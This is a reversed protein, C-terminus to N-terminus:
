RATAAAIASSVMTIRLAESCVAEGMAKSGEGEAEGRSRPSLRCTEVTAGSREFNTPMSRPPGTPLWSQVGSVGSVASVSIECSLLMAVPRKSVFGGAPMTGMLFDAYAKGAALRVKLSKLKESGAVFHALQLAGLPPPSAPRCSMRSGHEPWKSAPSITASIPGLPQPLVVKSSMNAMFFVLLYSPSTRTFPSGLSLSKLLIAAYTPWSSMIGGWQFTRSAILNLAASFRCGLRAWSFTSPQISTKSSVKPSLPTASDYMPLWSTRPMEPPWRRRTVNALPTAACAENSKQSSGVDPSEAVSASDQTLARRVTAFRKPTMHM